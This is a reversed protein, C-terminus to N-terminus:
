NRYLFGKDKFYNHITIFFFTYTKFNKIQKNDNRYYLYSIM